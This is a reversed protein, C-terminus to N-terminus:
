VACVCVLGVITQLITHQCPILTHLLQLQHVQLQQLRLLLQQLLQQAHNNNVSSAYVTYSTSSDVPCLLVVTRHDFWVCV